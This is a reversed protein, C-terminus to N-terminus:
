KLNYSDYCSLYVSNAWTNCVSHIQAAYHVLNLAICNCLLAYTYTTWQSPDARFFVFYRTCTRCDYVKVFGSRSTQCHVGKWIWCSHIWFTGKWVIGSKIWGRYLSHKTVEGGLNSFQDYSVTIQKASVQLMMYMVFWMQERVKFIIGTSQRDLNTMM